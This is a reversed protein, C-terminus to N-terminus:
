KQAALRDRIRAAWEGTLDAYMGPVEKLDGVTVGDFGHEWGAYGMDEHGRFLRLAGEAFGGFVQGLVCLGCDQLDLTELDIRGEWGSTERDLLAIGNQVRDKVTSM